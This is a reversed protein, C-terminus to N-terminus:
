GLELPAILTHAQTWRGIESWHPRPLSPDHETFDHVDRWQNDVPNLRADAFHKDLRSYAGNFPAFTIHHSSEVIPRTGAYLHVQCNSCDRM